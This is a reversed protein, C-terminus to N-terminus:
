LESPNDGMKVILDLGHFMPQSDWINLRRKGIDFIKINNKLNNMEGTHKIVYMAM